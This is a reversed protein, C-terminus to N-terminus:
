LSLGQLLEEFAHYCCFSGNTRRAAHAASQSDVTLEDEGDIGATILLYLSDRRRRQQPRSDIDISFRELIYIDGDELGAEDFIEKAWRMKYLAIPFYMHRSFYQRIAIFPMRAEALKVRQAFRM